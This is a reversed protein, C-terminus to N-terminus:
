LSLTLQTLLLWFSFVLRQLLYQDIGGTYTQWIGLFFVKMAYTINIPFPFMLIIQLINSKM